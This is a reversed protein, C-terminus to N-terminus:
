GRQIPTIAQLEQLECPFGGNKFECEEWYMCKVSCIAAHKEGHSGQKLQRRLARKIKISDFRQKHLLNKIVIDMLDKSAKGDPQYAIFPVLENLSDRVMQDDHVVGLFGMEVSLLERAAVQISLINKEEKSNHLMNILIMPHFDNLFAEIDASLEANIGRVEEVLDTITASKRHSESRAVQKVLDVTEKHSRIIKALQRFVALKVFNYSEIISLPDPKVVVVGLDAALFFDLTNYSTGAGLDLIVYDANFKKVHRIFKRKQVAPINAMGLTGEAGCCIKLHDYDPHGVLVDDLITVEKNLFHLMTRMPKDIGMVKALDAGGLDADVLTVEKGLSALGVGLSASILTKGVGGKGGGIAIIEPTRHISFEDQFIDTM